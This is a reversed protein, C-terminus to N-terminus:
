AGMYVGGVQQEKAEGGEVLHTCKQDDESGIDKNKDNHQVDTRGTSTEFSEGGTRRVQSGNGDEM